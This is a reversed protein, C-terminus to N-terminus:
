LTTKRSRRAVFKPVVGAGEEGEGRYQASGLLDCKRRGSGGTAAAEQQQEADRLGQAAAEAAEVEKIQANAMAQQAQQQQQQQQKAPSLTGGRQLSKRRRRRRKSKTRSTKKALFGDVAILVPFRANTLFEVLASAIDTM